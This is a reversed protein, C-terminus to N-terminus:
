CKKNLAFTSPGAKIFRSDEKKKNVDRILQAHMTAEPTKGSTKILDKALAIETIAHSHLPNKAEKLIQYAIDKFSPM